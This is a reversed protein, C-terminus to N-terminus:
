FCPMNIKNFYTGGNFILNIDEVYDINKLNNITLITNDNSSSDSYVSNFYTGDYKENELSYISVYETGKYLIYYHSM